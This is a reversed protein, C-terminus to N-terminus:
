REDDERPKSMNQAVMPREACYRFIPIPSPLTLIFLVTYSGAFCPGLTRSERGIYVQAVFARKRAAARRRMRSPATQWTDNQQRHKLKRIFSRISQRSAGRGGSNGCRGPSRGANMFIPLCVRRSPALWWACVCWQSRQCRQCRADGGDEPGRRQPQHM